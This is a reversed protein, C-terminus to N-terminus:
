ITPVIRYDEVLFWDVGDLSLENRWLIVDPDSTDWTLRIMPSSGALSEFVLRPGDIWGRLMAVRGYNDATTARYEGAGPDWGCVWHLEWRLLPTGDELFQDQAYDGVVWRGDQIWRHRAEGIATQAPTGPGMGGAHIRGVWTGDRHFPRLAEQEPGVSIPRPVASITTGAAM